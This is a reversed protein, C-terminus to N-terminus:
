WVCRAYVATGIRVGRRHPSDQGVACIASSGADREWAYAHARPPGSDKRKDSASGLRMIPGTIRFRISAAAPRVRGSLKRDNRPTLVPAGSKCWKCKGRDRGVSASTALRNKSWAATARFAQRLYYASWKVRRQNRIGAQLPPFVWSRRAGETPGGQRLFCAQPGLNRAGGSVVAGPAYGERTVVLRSIRLAFIFRVECQDIQSM